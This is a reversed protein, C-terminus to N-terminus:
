SLSSVRRSSHISRMSGAMAPEENRRRVAHRLDGNGGGFSVSVSTASNMGEIFLNGLFCGANLITFPKLKEVEPLEQLFLTAALSM